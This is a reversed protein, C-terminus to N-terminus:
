VENIADSSTHRCRFAIARKNEIADKALNDLISCMHPWRRDDVKFNYHRWVVQATSFINHNAPQGLRIKVLVHKWSAYALRYDALLASCTKFHLPKYMLNARRSLGLAGWKQLRKDYVVLVIHRCPTSHMGNFSDRALVSLNPALLVCRFASDRGALMSKFGLPYRAWDSYRCTLYLALFVAEICKIPLAESMINRATTMLENFPRRKRVDFHYGHEFNYKFASIYLQIRELRQAPPLSQVDDQLIPFPPPGLGAEVIDAESLRKLAERQL